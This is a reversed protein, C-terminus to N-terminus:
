IQERRDCDAIARQLAKDDDNTYSVQGRRVAHTLENRYVEYRGPGLKKVWHKGNEYVIQNLTTM